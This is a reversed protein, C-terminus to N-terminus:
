GKAAPRTAGAAAGLHKFRKQRHYDPRGERFTVRPTLCVARRAQRVSLAAFQVPLHMPASGTSQGTVFIPRGAATVDVDDTVFKIM